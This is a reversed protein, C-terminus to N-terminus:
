LSVSVTDGVQYAENGNVIITHGSINILLEYFNGMFNVKKVEGKIGNHDGPEITFHEPRIFGNVNQEIEPHDHFAQILERSVVNYKGFLAAAHENVPTKYVEIPAGKQIIQGKQLVIIEDAWPLMDHPDHSVLLCTIRLRESIDNIVAKLIHTHIADLNSYPEDLVLLKPATVLLRALSIRQREGGSLQHTWRSLLHNIRCIEYIKNAEQEGLLNAM